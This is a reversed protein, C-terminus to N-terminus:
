LAGRHRGSEARTRGGVTQPQSSSRTKPKFCGTPMKRLSTPMRKTMVQYPPTRADATTAKGSMYRVARPAKSLKSSVRAQLPM